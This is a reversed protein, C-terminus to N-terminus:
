SILAYKRKRDSTSIRVNMEDDMEQINLQMTKRWCSAHVYKSKSDSKKMEDVDVDPNGGLCHDWYTELHEKNGEKILKLEENTLKPTFFSNVDEYKM